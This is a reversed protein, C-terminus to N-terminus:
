LNIDKVRWWSSGEGSPRKGHTAHQPEPITEEVMEEGCISCVLYSRYWMNFAAQYHVIDVAGKTAGHKGFYCLLRRWRWAVRAPVMRKRPLMLPAPPKPLEVPTPVPVGGCGSCLNKGNPGSPYVTLVQYCSQCIDTEAETTM